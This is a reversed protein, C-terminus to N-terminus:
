RLHLRAVTELHFTQPFMDILDLQTITYGSHVLVALDRALTAPDCSVYTISHSRVQALAETAPAGLGARPPDLVIHDPRARRAGVSQLFALTSSEMVTQGPVNQRLDGASIPAVEVAVVHEAKTGLLRAFLGVGAFLDWATQTNEDCGDTALRALTDVLFRNAQFFAGASVRYAGGAAGYSLSPEGWHLTLAEGAREGGGRPARPQRRRASTAPLAASSTYTAGRLQAIREALAACLHDVQKRTAWTGPSGKLSLLLESSDHSTFFEAEACWDGLRVDRAIQELIVLAKQLFPAAIPCVDVALLKHSNRQLYGVAHSRPEVHLRIRNRYGWPDGHHLAIAPLDRLGAREMTEELISQKMAVQAPYSAHQYQCGGCVAYNPCPAAVRDTSAALVALLNAEAFNAKQKALVVEVAEGPLTGPVFIAMGDHRALGAGGYIAKEIRLKM